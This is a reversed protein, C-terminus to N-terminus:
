KLLDVKVFVFTKKDVGPPGNMVALMRWDGDSPPLHSGASASDFVPHRAEVMGGNLNRAKAVPVSGSWQNLVLYWRDATGGLATASVWLMMGVSRTEFSGEWESFAPFFRAVKKWDESVNQIRKREEESPPLGPAQRPTPYSIESISELVLSWGEQGRVLM